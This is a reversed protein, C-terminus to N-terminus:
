LELRDRLWRARQDAPQSILGARLADRAQPPIRQALVILDARAAPTLERLVGLLPERQAEPVQAVLPQLGPYEAGLEPGLLWGRRDSGDLATWADRLRQQQQAPLAEFVAAARRLRAQEAPPLTRWAQWAERRERQAAPVLGDWDAVRKAFAERQAPTMATLVAQHRQLEARTPASIAQAREVLGPPLSQAAVGGAISCALAASALRASRRASLRM